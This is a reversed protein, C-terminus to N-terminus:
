GRIAIESRLFSFGRSGSFGLGGKRGMIVPPLLCVQPTGTQDDNEYDM